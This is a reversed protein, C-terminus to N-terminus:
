FIPRSFFIEDRLEAHRHRFHQAEKLSAFAPPHVNQNLIDEPYGKLILALQCNMFIQLIPNYKFSSPYSVMGNEDDVIAWEEAVKSKLGTGEFLLLLVIIEKITVQNVGGSHHKCSRMPSM